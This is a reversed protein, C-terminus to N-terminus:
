TIVFGKIVPDPGIALGEISHPKMNFHFGYRSNLVMILSQYKQTKSPNASSFYLEGFRSVWESMKGGIKQLSDEINVSPVKVETKGLQHQINTPDRDFRTLGIQYKPLNFNTIYAQPITCVFLTYGGYSFEDVVSECASRTVINRKMEESLQSLKLWNM